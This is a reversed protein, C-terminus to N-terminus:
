GCLRMLTATPRADSAPETAADPATFAATEPASARSPPSPRISSRGM